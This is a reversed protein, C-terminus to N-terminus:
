WQAVLFDEPYSQKQQVKLPDDGLPKKIQRPGILTALSMKIHSDWLNRFM